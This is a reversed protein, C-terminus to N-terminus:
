QPYNEFYGALDVQSIPFSGLAHVTSVFFHLFPYDSYVVTNLSYPRRAIFCQNLVCVCNPRLDDDVPEVIEKFAADVSEASTWESKYAFIFGRPRLVREPSIKHRHGSPYGIAATAPLKRVSAVQDVANRLEGKNLTTKVSICGFVTEIPVISWADADMFAPSNIRDRIIVDTQTSESGDASVVKGTTLEYRTPLHQRLYRILVHENNRGKEGQHSMQASIDELESLMRKTLGEYYRRM